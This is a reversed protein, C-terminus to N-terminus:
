PAKSHVEFMAGGEDSIEFGYRVCETMTDWSSFSVGYDSPLGCPYTGVRGTGGWKACDMLVTGYIGDNWWLAEPQVVFGQAELLAALRERTKGVVQSSRGGSRLKRRAM